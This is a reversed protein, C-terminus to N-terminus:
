GWCQYIEVRERFFFSCFSIFRFFSLMAKPYQICPFATQIHLSDLVSHSAPLRSSTQASVGRVETHMSIHQCSFSLSDPHLSSHFVRFARCCSHLTAAVRGPRVDNNCFRNDRFYLTLTSRLSLAASPLPCFPLLPRLFM